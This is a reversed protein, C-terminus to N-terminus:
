TSMDGGVCGRTNLVAVLLADARELYAFGRTTHAVVLQGRAKLQEHVHWTRGSVGLHPVAPVRLVAAEVDVDLVLVGESKM